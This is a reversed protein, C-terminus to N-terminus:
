GIYLLVNSCNTNARIIIRPSALAMMKGVVRIFRSRPVLATKTKAVRIM